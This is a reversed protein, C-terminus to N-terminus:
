AAVVVCISTRRRRPQRSAFTLVGMGHDADHKGVGMEPLLRDRLDPWTDGDCRNLQREQSRRCKRLGSRGGGQASSNRLPRARISHRDQQAHNIATYHRSSFSGNAWHNM